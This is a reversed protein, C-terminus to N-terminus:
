IAVSRDVNRAKLAALLERLRDSADFRFLVEGAGEATCQDIRLLEHPSELLRVLRDRLEAPIDFPKQLLETLEDLTSQFSEADAILKFM